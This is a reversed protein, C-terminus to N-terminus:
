HRHSGGGHSHGSHALLRDRPDTHIHKEVGGVFTLPIGLAAMERKLIELKAAADEFTSVGDNEIAIVTSGDTAFVITGKM